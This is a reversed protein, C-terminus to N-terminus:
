DWEFVLHCHLYNPDSMILHEFITKFHITSMLMFYTSNWRTSVDQRLGHKTDLALCKAYKLFKEKRLRSSKVFKISERVKEIIHDVDKLGEQMILNLIHVCCRLHFLNGNLSFIKKSNLNTKLLSICLDNVFTSDLTLSSLKKIIDWDVLIEYIKKFLKSGTRSFNTDTMCLIYKKLNWNADIFLYNYSFLWENNLSMWMDSTLSIRGPTRVLLNKINGKMSEYLKLM